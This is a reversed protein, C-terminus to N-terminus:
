FSIVLIFPNLVKKVEDDIAFSVSLFLFDNSEGEHANTAAQKLEDDTTQPVLAIVEGTAPNTVDIWETSKSEVMEGNIFNPVKPVNASSALSRTFTGLASLPRARLMM